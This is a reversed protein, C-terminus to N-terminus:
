RECTAAGCSVTRITELVPPLASREEVGPVFRNSAVGPVPVNESPALSM